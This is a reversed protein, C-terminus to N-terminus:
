HAAQGAREEREMHLHSCVDDSEDPFPQAQSM